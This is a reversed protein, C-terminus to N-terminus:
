SKILQIYFRIMREFDQTSRRENIGHVGDSDVVPNFNIVGESITRFYRSDTAGIVFFPAATADPFFQQALKEISKYAPGTHSTFPPVEWCNITRTVKVREDKIVKSIFSEVENLTEGPLIRCNVTATAITPIVNDKIGSKIITTVLTTRIIANTVYTKEMQRLIAKKFLWQNNVASRISYPLNGKIKRFFTDVLPILKAPSKKDQLRNLASVLIDIATENEPASSHGGNKEVRLDFTAYGKEAVGILAVPKKLGPFKKNMVELGEDLVLEPKIKQQRFWDSMERGGLNGSIEEDHGFCLYITREPTYHSSLLYEVAELIAILSGKDDVTGRGWITDTIVEGSFPPVKWLSLAEEEVPVVDSHAMLVYPEFLNNRGPWEYLFSFDNFIIRKLNTHILPYSQELLHKFQYFVTSDYKAPDDYSITRIQIAKSLREISSKFFTSSDISQAHISYSVIISYILCFCIKKICNM